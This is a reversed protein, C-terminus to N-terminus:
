EIRKLKRLGVMFTPISIVAQLGIFIGLILIEMYEISILDILIEGLGEAMLIIFGLFIGMQLGITIFMNTGMNKGKEEFAPRYCQIGVTLMMALMASILFALFSIIGDLITLKLFFVMPIILALDMLFILIFMMLLYSYVLGSVHRPSKKYVWLLDKSGVFVYGGFIISLMLGGMYIRLILSVMNQIPHTGNIDGLDGMIIPYVVGFFIIFGSVYMLKSINEKKRFFEKFQVITLGEWKRRLIRRFFGYFKSNDKINTSTKEVGGELSYFGEAKKYSLYFVLLPIGIALILSTWINLLYVDLLSPELIYLIINSFWHAPYFVLWNRQEPHEMLFQFFYILGYIIAVLAVSLLM